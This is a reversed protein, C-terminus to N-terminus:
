MARKGHEEVNKEYANILSQDNFNKWFERSQNTIIFLWEILHLRESKSLKETQKKKLFNM